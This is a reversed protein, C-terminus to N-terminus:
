GGEALIPLSMPRIDEKDEDTTVRKDEIVEIFEDDDDELTVQEIAQTITDEIVRVEIDSQTLDIVEIPKDESTLSTTRDPVEPAGSALINEM